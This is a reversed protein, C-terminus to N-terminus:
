HYVGTQSLRRRRQSYVVVPVRHRTSRHEDDGEDERERERFAEALAPINLRGLHYEALMMSRPGRSRGPRIVPVDARTDLNDM